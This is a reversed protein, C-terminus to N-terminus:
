FRIMKVPESRIGDSVQGVFCGSRLRELGSIEVLNLGKSLSVKQQIVLQGSVSYLDIEVRMERDTYIRISSLGQNNMSSSLISFPKEENVLNSQVRTGHYDRKGDRDVSYLKYYTHQAHINLGDNVKYELNYPLNFAEERAFFEYNVGDTSKHLEYHSLNVESTTMWFVEVGGNAARTDFSGLTVPLTLCDLTITETNATATGFSTGSGDFVEIEGPGNPSTSMDNDCRSSPSGSTGAPVTLTLEAGCGCIYTTSSSGSQALSGSGITSPSPDEIIWSVSNGICNPTTLEIRYDATNAFCGNTATTTTSCPGFIWQMGNVEISSIEADVTITVSVCANSSGDSWATGGTGDMDGYEIDGSGSTSPVTASISNGTNPSVLTSTNSVINGSGGVFTIDLEFGWTEELDGACVDFTYTYTGDSNDLASTETITVDHCAFTPICITSLVLIAFLYRM